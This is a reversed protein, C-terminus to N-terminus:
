VRGFKERYEGPTCGMSERYVKIFYSTDGFGSQMAIEGIKMESNILLEAAKQLRLQKVYQIPTTGITSHFCRLCESESVMASRAIVATNLEEGYHAQIYQLMLKTREGKLLTKESPLKQPEPQYESLLFLLHSLSNRVEFEFGPQEAAGYKWATEVADVAPQHWPESGDFLVMKMGPRKLVPEVYNQWFVSDIGGGVLRPHFVVSHFRCCSADMDWAAHLVGSNIFFGEGCNIRKKIGDVALLATGEEVVVAEWEDHWHWIVDERALDDHYFAAPFLVTGHEKDERGNKDTKVECRSLAM